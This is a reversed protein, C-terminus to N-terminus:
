KLPHVVQTGAPVHLQLQAESVEANMTFTLIHLHVRTGNKEIQVFAQPQFDRLMLRMEQVSTRAERPVLRLTHLGATDLFLAVEYAKTLAEPDTHWFALIQSLGGTTQLDIVELTQLLPYYTQVTQADLRVLLATAGATNTLVYLLAEGKLWLEGQAVLPQRLVPLQKEQRFVMHLSRMSRLRESWTTLFATQAEGTIPKGLEEAYATSVLGILLVMWIDVRM